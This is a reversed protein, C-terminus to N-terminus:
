ALIARKSGRSVSKDGGLFGAVAPLLETGADVKLIYGHAGTSLAAHEIDQDSNQTLFLIRAEPAVKGIRNAAKLGNLTPLGIDLLILDPQLEQAKQVAELGDAVEAVVRLEPRTLLISRVHQRWRECDDVLLVRVSEAMFAEQLADACSVTGMSPDASHQTSWM